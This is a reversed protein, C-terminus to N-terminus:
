QRLTFCLEVEIEGAGARQGFVIVPGQLGSDSHTVLVTYTGTQPLALGSVVADHGNPTSDDSAALPTQGDPALVVLVPDTEQQIPTAVLPETTQPTAM